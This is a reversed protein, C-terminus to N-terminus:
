TRSNLPGRARSTGQTPAKTTWEGSMQRGTPDIAGKFSAQFSGKSVCQWILANDSTVQGGVALEQDVQDIVCTGTLMLISTKM